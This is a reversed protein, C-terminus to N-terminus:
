GVPPHIAPVPPGFAALLNAAYSDCWRIAPGTRVEEPVFSWVLARAQDDLGEAVWPMTWDVDANARMNAAPFRSWQEVSLHEAVLPLAKAEEDALHVSLIAAIEAMLEVARDAARDSPDAVWLAMATDADTLLQDLAAHQTSMEELVPQSAPWAEYLTPWLVADEVVHHNELLTHFLDWNAGIARVREPDSPHASVAGQLRAIDRAFARHAMIMVSLNPKETTAESMPETHSWTGRGLGSVAAM